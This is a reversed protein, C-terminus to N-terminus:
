ASPTADERKVTQNSWQAFLRAVEEDFEVRKFKSGDLGIYEKLNDYMWVMNQAAHVDRDYAVGCDPCVFTRDYLQIGKHVHGCDRCFKTTPVYKNLVSVQNKHRILDQKVRGLIGHQMKKGHKKRWTQLQEDQIIIRENEDLLQKVVIHSHENKINSLRDYEKHIRISLKRYNNSFKTTRSRRRKLRKLKETEEVYCNIKRGDSLTLSTECGFDIGIKENKYIKQEDSNNYYVTLYIYYDNDRKKLVANAIDYESGYKEMQNLGSVPLPKKVGQIKIRNYSVIKHTVGYQKLGITNVQSKFKLGGVKKGKKKLTALTKLQSRMREILSDKLSSTVFNLYSHIINKDKDFHTVTQLEKGKYKFIDITGNNMSSLLFNYCWKTEVFMMKLTDIQQKNLRHRKVKLEFVRCTQHKRKEYTMRMTESIQKNKDTNM